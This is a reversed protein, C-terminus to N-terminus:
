EIPKIGPYWAMKIIHEDIVRLLAPDQYAEMQKTEHLNKIIKYLDFFRSHEGPSTKFYYLQIYDTLFNEIYDINVISLRIRLDAPINSDFDKAKEFQNIQREREKPELCTINGQMFVQTLPDLKSMISNRANDSIGLLIETPSLCPTIKSNPLIIFKNKM